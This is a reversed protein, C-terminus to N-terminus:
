LALMLGHRTRGGIEREVYILGEHIMQIQQDLYDQMARQTSQIREQEEVTGLLVEPLILNYTSPSNGVIERVQNWYEPESTFQDCAIVAWKRLDIGPRPLLIDAVQLGVSPYLRM